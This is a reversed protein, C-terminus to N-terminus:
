ICNDHILLKLVNKLSIDVIDNCAHDLQAINKYMYICTAKNTFFVYYRLIAGFYYYEIHSINSVLYKKLFYSRKSKRPMDFSILAKKKM